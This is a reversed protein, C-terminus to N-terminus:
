SSPIAPDMIMLRHLNELDNARLYGQYRLTTLSSRPSTVSEPDTIKGTVLSISQGRVLTRTNIKSPNQNTIM